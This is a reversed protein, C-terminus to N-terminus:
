ASRDIVTASAGVIAQSSSGSGGAGAGEPKALAPLLPTSKESIRNWRRSESSGATVEPVNWTTVGPVRSSTTLVRATLSTLTPM